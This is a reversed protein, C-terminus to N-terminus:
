NFANVDKLQKLGPKTLRYLKNGADFRESVILGAREIRRLLTSAGNVGTKWGMRKLIERIKDFSKPGDVLAACVAFQRTSMGSVPLIPYPAPVDKGAFQTAKGAIIYIFVILLLWAVDRM